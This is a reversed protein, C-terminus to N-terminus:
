NKKGSNRKSCENKNRLKEERFNKSHIFCFLFITLVCLLLQEYLKYDVYEIIIYYLYDNGSYVMRNELIQRVIGLM